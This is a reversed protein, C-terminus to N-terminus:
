MPAALAKHNMQEMAQQPFGCRKMFALMNQKGMSANCVKCIPRLNRLITPGGTAEAVLHGCEFHLADITQHSCCPCKISFQEGAYFTWVQDRLAKSIRCKSKYAASSPPASIIVFPEELDNKYRFSTWPKEWWDAVSKWLWNTSVQLYYYLAM